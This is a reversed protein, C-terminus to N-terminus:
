PVQSFLYEALSYLPLQCTLFAFLSSVSISWRTRSSLQPIILFMCVVLTIMEKHCISETEVM